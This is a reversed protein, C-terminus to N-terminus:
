KGGCMKKKEENKNLDATGSAARGEGADDAGCETRKCRAMGVVSRMRTGVATRM